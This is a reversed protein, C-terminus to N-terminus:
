RKPVKMDEDDEGDADDFPNSAIKHSAPNTVKSEKVTTREVFRIEENPLTKKRRLKRLVSRLQRMNEKLDRLSNEDLVHKSVVVCFFTYTTRFAYYILINATSSIVVIHKKLLPRM